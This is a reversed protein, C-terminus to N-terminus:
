SAEESRPPLDFLARDQARELFEDLGKMLWTSSTRRAPPLQSQRRDAPTSANINMILAAAVMVALDRPSSLARDVPRADRDDPRAPDSAVGLRPRVSGSTNDLQPQRDTKIGLM